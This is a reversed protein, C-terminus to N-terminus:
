LLKAEKLKNLVQEANYQEANLSSFSEPEVYDEGCFYYDIPQQTTIRAYTIGDECETTARYVEAGTLLTEHMKEGPRIGIVTKPLERGFHLELAEVLTKIKCAPPRMIFLEGAKGDNLCKLSLKVAEELTLIFRTMNPNTITIPENRNIFGLFLPIVSGRSGLVNGYRLCVNVTKGKHASVFRESLAKSMGYASIPYAAKDSNGCFAFRGRREVLVNGTPVTVCWVKGIYDMMRSKKIQISKPKQSGYIYYSVKGRAAHGAIIVDKTPHTAIHPNMGLKIFLEVIDRALNESVTTYQTLSGMMNGDGDVLGDLLSKLLTKSSNLMWAPVTKNAAGRGCSTWFEHLLRSSFELFGNHNPISHVSLGWSELITRAKQNAKDTQPICLVISNDTNLFGDSIFLGTLYFIENTPLKSPIINYRKKYKYFRQRNETLLGTRIKTGYRLRFRGKSDRDTWDGQPLLLPSKRKRVEIAPKMRITGRRTLYVMKHNPTVLLDIRRGKFEVMRGDYDQCIINFIPQEELIGKESVGFTIDDAQIEHWYKFGRKTVLRTEEDYCSLNVVRKVGCYEAADIVNKTGIINTNVIEEPFKEGTPVHKLAAAHFVYDVGQMSYILKERDRVDGIVYTINKDRREIYMDFQKSEDRSYVIFKANSGQLYDILASGFSGTGGTVLITKGNLEEM